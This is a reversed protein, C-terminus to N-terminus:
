RRTWGAVDAAVRNAARNLAAAVTVPDTDAVPESVEFRRLAVEAARPAAIQADYRVRVVPAAPDRADVGFDRLTGTLTRAPSINSQRTDIVAQEGVRQGGAGRRRHHRQEGGPRDARRPYRNRHPHAAIGAAQCQRRDPRAPWVGDACLRGGHRCLTAENPTKRNPRCM